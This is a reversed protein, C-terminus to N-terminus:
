QKVFTFYGTSALPSEEGEEEEIPLRFETFATNFTLTVEEPTEGSDGIRYVQTTQSFNANQNSNEWSGSFTENAGGEFLIASLATIEEQSLGGGSISLETSGNMNGNASFTYQISLNYDFSITEGEDGPISFPFSEQALWNGIIPDTGGNGEDPDESSCAILLLSFLLFFSKKMTFINTPM